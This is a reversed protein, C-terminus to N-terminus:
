RPEVNDSAPPPEDVEIRPLARLPSVGLREQPSALRDILNAPDEVEYDAITRQPPLAAAPPREPRGREPRPVMDNILFFREGDRERFMRSFESMSLLMTVTIIAAGIIAILVRLFM